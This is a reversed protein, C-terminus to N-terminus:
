DKGMKNEEDSMEQSQESKGNKETEKEIIRDIKGLLEPPLDQPTKSRAAARLEENRKHELEILNPISSDEQNVGEPDEPSTKVHHIIQEVLNEFHEKEEPSSDHSSEFRNIEEETIPFGENHRRLARSCLEWLWHDKKEEHGSM